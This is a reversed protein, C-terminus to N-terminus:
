QGRLKIKEFFEYRDVFDKALARVSSDLDKKFERRSIIHISSREWTIAQMVVREDLKIRNVEVPEFLRASLAYAFGDRVPFVMILIHFKPLDTASISPSSYATIGATKFVQGVVAELEEPTVNLHVREGKAIEVSVSINSSLNLLHDSWLWEGERNAIIGPHVTITERAKEIAEETPAAPTTEETEPQAFIFTPALVAAFLLQYIRNM